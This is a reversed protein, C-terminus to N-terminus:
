ELLVILAKSRYTREDRGMGRGVRLSVSKVVFFVFFVKNKQDLENSRISIVFSVGM